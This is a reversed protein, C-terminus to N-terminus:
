TGPSRHYEVRAIEVEGACLDPLYEGGMFMPHFSGRWQREDETLSQDFCHPDTLGVLDGDLAAEAVARRVSGKVTARVKKKPDDYVWYSKPRYEMSYDNIKPM